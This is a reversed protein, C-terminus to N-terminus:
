FNFLLKFFKTMGTAGPRQKQWLSPADQLKPSSVGCIGQSLCCVQGRVHQWQVATQPDLVCLNNILSLVEVVAKMGCMTPTWEQGCRVCLRLEAGMFFSWVWGWLQGAVPQPTRAGTPGTSGIASSWSTPQPTLGSTTRRRWNLTSWLVPGWQFCVCGNFLCKVCQVSDSHLHM